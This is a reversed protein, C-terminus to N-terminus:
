INEIWQQLWEIALDEPLSSKQIDIQIKDVFQTAGQQQFLEILVEPGKCFTDYSSDGIACVAFNIKSLDPKQTRIQEFLPQINDPLDGAGHTSCVLIWYEDAQIEDLNPQLHQETQHNKQAIHTILEDSVYEANGLTTGVLVAIKTM